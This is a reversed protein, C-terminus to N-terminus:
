ALISWRSFLVGRGTVAIGFIAVASGSRRSGAIGILQPAIRPSLLLGEEPDGDNTQVIRYRPRRLSYGAGDPFQGTVEEYEVIPSGEPKAGPIAHQQLQAGYVPHHVVGKAPDAEGGVSLRLVLALFDTGNSPPAGRGDKFHCASCSRANFLPGLGDRSGTSAPAIVWNQRFFSNGVFFSRREKRNLAPLPHGFANETTDAVTVDPRMSESLAAASVAVTALAALSFLHSRSTRLFKNQLHFGRCSPGNL